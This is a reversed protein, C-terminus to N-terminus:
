FFLRSKKNFKSNFRKFLRREQFIKKGGSTAGIVLNTDNTLFNGKRSIDLYILEDVNWDNFREAQLFPDGTIQYFSFKRSRVLAGNKLLLVPIVRIKLLTEKVVM